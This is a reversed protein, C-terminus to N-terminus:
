RLAIAALYRAYIGKQVNRGHNKTFSNLQLQKWCMSSNLGQISAGPHLLRWTSALPTSPAGQIRCKGAKIEIM